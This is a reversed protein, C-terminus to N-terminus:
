GVVINVLNDGDDAPVIRVAVELAEAILSSSVGPSSPPPETTLHEKM